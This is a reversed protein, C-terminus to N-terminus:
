KEGKGEPKKAAKKPAAKKAETKKPAGSEKQPKTTEKVEGEKEAGREALVLRIHCHRLRM